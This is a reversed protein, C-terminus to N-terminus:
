AEWLGLLLSQSPCTTQSFVVSIGLQHWGVHGDTRQREQCSYGGGEQLIYLLHIHWRLKEWESFYQRYLEFAPCLLTSVTTEFHEPPVCVANCETNGLYLTYNQWRIEYCGNFPLTLFVFQWTDESQKRNPTKVQVQVWPSKNVSHSSSCKKCKEKSDQNPPLVQFTPSPCWVLHCEAAQQNLSDLVVIWFCTGSQTSPTM